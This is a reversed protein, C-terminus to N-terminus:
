ASSAAPKSSAQAPAVPEEDPVPLGLALSVLPVIPLEALEDVGFWGFADTSGDVEVREAGGVVDMPYVFRVQHYPLPPETIPWTGADSLILPADTIRGVLGTEEEVERLAGVDPAEGFRLGGGPLTWLGASLYGPGVRCLLTEGARRILGYAALRVVRQLTGDPGVMGLDALLAALDPDGSTAPM